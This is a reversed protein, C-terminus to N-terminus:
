AMFEDVVQLVNKWFTEVLAKDFGNEDYGLSIWLKGAFTYGFMLMGGSRQRSGTTLTHLQIGPYTAHKYTADLNGLLSLGILVQSPPRESSARDFLSVAKQTQKVPKGDDQRAWVQARESRERAMQRCRSVLMPTKMAATSQKKAERSRHWFTPALDGSAPFFSPLIVNFYGIALFWYSDHLSPESTLKPRVNLASYMMTPLDPSKNCTRVWALNCAAFLASSVSVGHTKCKKLIAKTREPDFAENRVVTKRSYGSQKPFVQGGINKEQSRHFDVQRAARHLPGGPAPPLRDEVAKPLYKMATRRSSIENELMTSLDALTKEGGLLTFFDNAFQHLAMGDGLFHTACILFDCDVTDSSTPTSNSVNVVLYSLREDSLTRPGNLYSDVLDDGSQLRYELNEDASSLAAKSDHPLAYGFRVDHYDYMRVRSALLPHCLRLIAWVLCVRNRQVFSPEIRCGLRLYMDNVGDGRSPLYYSLETDGLQREFCVEPKEQVDPEQLTHSTRSAEHTHKWRVISLGKRLWADLKVATGKFLLTTM